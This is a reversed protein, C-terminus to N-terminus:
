TCVRKNQEETSNVAVKKSITEGDDDTWTLELEGDKDASAYFSVYPNASVAPHWDSQFVVEGDLTAVFKNIIFRPITEGTKKDKRQGSEMKHSVLAKVLFPEGAKVKKPIKVRAKAM